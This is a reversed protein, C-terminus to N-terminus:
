ILDLILDLILEKSYIRSKIKKLDLESSLARAGVFMM